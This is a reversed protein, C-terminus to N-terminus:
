FEKRLLADAIEPMPNGFFTRPSGNDVLLGWAQKGDPSFIVHFQNDRCDHAKCISFVEYTKSGVTVNQSPKATGEFNRTYYTLWPFVARSPNAAILRDWSGRYVPDMLVDFLYRGNAHAATALAAAIVSARIVLGRM